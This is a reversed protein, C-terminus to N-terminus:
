LQVTGALSRELLQHKRFYTISLPFSNILHQKAAVTDDALIDLYTNFARGLEGENAKELLNEKSHTIYKYLGIDISRVRMLSLLDQKEKETAGELKSFLENALSITLDCEMGLFNKIQTIILNDELKKNSSEM